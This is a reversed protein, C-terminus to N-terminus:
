AYFDPVHRWSAFTRQEHGYLLLAGLDDQMRLLHRASRRYLSPNWAQVEARPETTEMLGIADGALIVWGTEPLLIVVSQHAPVHGPTPILRIGPLLEAEGKPLLWAAGPVDWDSRFFRSSERAHELHARQVVFTAHPFWANCGCHDFHFHTNVVFRIEEPAIGLAALRAMPTDEPKMVPTILGERPTGRFRVLPDAVHDPHMGTDVLVKGRPHDILAGWIPTTILVGDDAPGTFVRGKDVVCNGYPLIYLQV